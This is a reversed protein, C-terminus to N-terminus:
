AFDIFRLDTLGGAVNLPSWPATSENALVEAAGFLLDPARETSSRLPLLLYEVRPASWWGEAVRFHAGCPRECLHALQAAWLAREDAPYLDFWNMGTIERGIRRQFDTGALRVMLQDPQKWELLIVSPLVAKLAVPDIADRLPVAQSGRVDCYYSFAVRCANSALEAATM